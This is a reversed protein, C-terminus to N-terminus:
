GSMKGAFLLACCSNNFNEATEVCLRPLHSMRYHLLGNAEKATLKLSLKLM